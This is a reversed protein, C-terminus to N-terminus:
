LSGRERREGTVFKVFRDRCGKGRLGSSRLIKRLVADRDSSAGLSFLLCTSPGPGGGAGLSLSGGLSLGCLTFPFVPESTLCVQTLEELYGPVTSM